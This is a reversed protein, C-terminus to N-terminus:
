ACEKIFELLSKDYKKNNCPQCAPVVNDISHLGGKVIPVVHDQVLPGSGSCYACRYNFEELTRQWQDATFPIITAGRIRAKRRKVNIMVAAHNKKHYEKKQALVLEKNKTYYAVNLERMRKKNKKRWAKSRAAESDRRKAAYANQRALIKLRQSENERYRKRRYAKGEETGHRKVSEIRYCVKCETRYGKSRAGGHLYFETLPKEEHCIRCTKM